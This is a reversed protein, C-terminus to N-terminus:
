EYEIMLSESLQFEEDVMLKVFEGNEDLNFYLEYQNYGFSKLSFAFDWGNYDEKLLEESLQEIQENRTFIPFSPDIWINPYQDYIAYEDLVEVFLFEGEDLVEPEIEQQENIPLTENNEELANWENNVFNSENVDVNFFSGVQNSYRIIRHSMVAEVGQFSQVFLAFTFLGIISKKIINKLLM